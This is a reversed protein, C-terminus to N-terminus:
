KPLEIVYLNCTGERDSTFLIKENNWSFTPHCHTQQTNWSTHHSCLTKITAKEGSMDILVLDEIEDGVLLTNDNNSHYHNCYFPLDIQRIIKGEENALGVFPIQGSTNLNQTTAQTKYVTITGDHGKRRNDFFIKGDNTWFEHGICDDEGQRFLPQPSRSRIDLLWIRQHVLNWPGEHCFTALSSNKPSFQFHGLWHTDQFVDFVEKGDMSILTIWGKKTAYMTEKFGRYNAGRKIPVFENRAMGIYRKDASIHPHGLEIGPKEEYLVTTKLTSIEIKKLLRGTVYVVIDGEPTKTHFSPTIGEPEDTLQLIGGTELNMKFLNYIAPRESSRDSLFYIDQDGKCFSNDTFYFHFNNSGNSTLQKVVNGTKEDIYEKIESPFEKGIM